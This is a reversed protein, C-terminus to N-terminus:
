ESTIRGTPHAREASPQLEAFRDLLRSRPLRKRAVKLRDQATSPCAPLLGLTLTASLVDLITADAAFTSGLNYNRARMDRVEPVLSPGYSITEGSPAPPM